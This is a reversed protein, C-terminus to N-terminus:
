PGSVGPGIDQNAFLAASPILIAHRVVHMDLNPACSHNIYRGVNGMRTADINTRLIGGARGTHSNLTPRPWRTWDGVIARAALMFM